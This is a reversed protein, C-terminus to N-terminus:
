CDLLALWRTVLKFNEKPQDEFVHGGVHGGHQHAEVALM